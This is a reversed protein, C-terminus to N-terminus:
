GSLSEPSVKQHYTILVVYVMSLFLMIISYGVVMLKRKPQYRKEPKNAADLIQITPTDRAEQIKSEEYKQTLFAYLMSQIEVERQLGMLEVELDPIDSFLPFLNDERHDNETSSYDLNKLQNKLGTIELDINQVEPHDSKFSNLLVGLKVEDILIQSKIEAAVKITAKTQEALNLANHEHQFLLLKNEARKLQKVTENYRTEMFLRHYRAEDTQLSKNVNDLENVIYIVIETALGRATDADENNSLWSTSVFASIRITGEELLDYKLNGKLTEVADEMNESGYLNILDMNNVISEMMTRSKLIAFITNEIEDSNSSLFDGFAMGEFSTMIGQDSQSKPPMLVSSSRFTRPMILAIIATFCATILVNRIILTRYKWFLSGYYFSILTNKKM